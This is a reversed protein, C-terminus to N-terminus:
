AFPVGGPRGKWPIGAGFWRRIVREQFLWAGNLKVLRDEYWGTMTVFRAGTSGDWRIMSFYSRSNARDGEGELTIATIHHQTGAHDPRDFFPTILRRVGDRGQGRDGNITQWVGDPAFLDLFAELDAQDLSWAYRTMMEHIDLRDQVSLRNKTTM